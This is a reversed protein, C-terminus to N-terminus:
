CAAVPNLDYSLTFWSKGTASTTCGHAIDKLYVGQTAQDQIMLYDERSLM